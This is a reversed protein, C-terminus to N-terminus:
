ERNNKKNRERLGAADRKAADLLVVEAANSISLYIYTHAHTHIHNHTHIHIYM